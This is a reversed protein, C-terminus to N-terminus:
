FYGPGLCSILKQPPLNLIKQNPIKKKMGRQISSRMVKQEKWGLSSFAVSVLTPGYYQWTLLAREPGWATNNIDGSDVTRGSPIQTTEFPLAQGDCSNLVGNDCLSNNSSHELKLLRKTLFVSFHLM